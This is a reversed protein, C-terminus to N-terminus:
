VSQGRHWPLAVLGEPGSMEEDTMEAQSFTTLAEYPPIGQMVHTVICPRRPSLMGHTMDFSEATSVAEM